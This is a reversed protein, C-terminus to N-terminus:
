FKWDIFFNTSLLNRCLTIRLCNAVGILIAFWNTFPNYTNLVTLMRYNCPLAIRGNKFGFRIMTTIHYWVKVFSVSM